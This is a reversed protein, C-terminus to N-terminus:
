QRRRALRISLVALAAPTVGPIRGAQGLDSPRVRELVEQVELSLGPLGRYSFGEPIKVRFLEGAAEAQAQARAIFGEYKIRTEVQEAAGPPLKGPPPAFERVLGYGIGPRRLLEAWSLSRSVTGAGLAEVRGAAESGPSVTSVGLRDIEKQVARFKRRVKEAEAPPVLGVRAGTARLREDANDERLLLRFEARSGFMRYPEQTGRATLDDIMVGIFAESRELVLPDEGAAALAANIGALLGQAAAEEYGTTGNIQGALYLGRVAKTELSNKLALPDVYGHEIGYGPRRMASDELGPITHLLEAQVELPLSTSIGNPYYENTRLGEPELFVHHRNKQPFKVVKDEISPCYRVGRAKIVGSFLPSRDLGSRIARHTNENTWALYCPVSGASNARRFGFGPIDEMPEQIELRSFDITKGDLRACTGTKFMGLPLGLAKLSAFLGGATEAGLRGGPFSRLGVHCLGDLFTGPALIVARAAFEAGLRTRVGLVKGSEALVEEVRDQWLRLHPISELHERALEQYLHRDVQARTARVAPGKRTNLKRFHIAARDALDGMAGGLAAIERVLQGKGLGGIAPNCSMKGIEDLDLTVLLTERGMRASASAAEIGAHGGGVVIIDYSTKM